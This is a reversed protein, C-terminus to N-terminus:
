PGPSAARPLEGGGGVRHPRAVEAVERGGDLAHRREGGAASRRARPRPRARGGPAAHDPVAVGAGALVQQRAEEAAVRRRPEVGEVPDLQGLDDRTRGGRRRDSAPRVSNATRARSASSCRRRGGACTGAATRSLPGVEVELVGLGARRAQRRRPGRVRPRRGRPGRGDPPTNAARTAGPPAARARGGGRPAAAPGPAPREPGAGGGRAGTAEAGARTTAETGRM